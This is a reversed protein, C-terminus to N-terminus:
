ADEEEEIFNYFYPLDHFHHEKTVHSVIHGTVLFRGYEIAEGRDHALGVELLWDCMDTGTFVQKYEKLRYKLDKVIAKSCNNKHYKKFQECLHMTEEDLESSDPLTVIEVGYVLKRWRKLLKRKFNVLSKICPLFILRTDFGFIAFIIFGQGYNMVGDLFEVEVYTGTTVRNFLRWTCLFLGMFMSVQCLVLMLMFRNSQFDDKVNRSRNSGVSDEDPIAVVSTNYKRLLGACRRRQEIGCTGYVCQEVEYTDTLGDGSNSSSDSILSETEKPFPVIDEISTRGVGECSNDCNNCSNMSRYDEEKSDRRGLLRCRSDDKIGDNKKRKSNLIDGNQHERLKSYASSNRQKLILCVINITSCVTLIALSLITQDEGYHFSPDIEAHMHHGALMILLGTCFMPIGFGALILWWRIRLLFCLSRCHLFYLCLSIVATWCRTSLVGVLILTFQVLHLWSITKSHTGEYLILGLCSFVHAVCFCLLFQHPMKKYRGSLFLLVIVWISCVLSIISTDFSTELMLTKYDLESNVVVTLMKASVFMIPASLFTGAVMGTAVIDQGISYHSAYLFVSPATPFTGYLFGFMSLSETTNKNSYSKELAGVVEWTVLPLILAKAAILLVPVILQPGMQGSIKGVLSLGLYFLAAGSFADGLVDLIESIVLPLNRRLIFNGAIGIITMFVIPNTIVGKIVHLILACTGSKPGSDNISKSVEVDVGERKKQIELLLFGIPNLIVVSVPAILYIYNLYQPHSKDYLAQLIPYGLAFDNSQTCFIAFLGAYGYNVPRKAVLTVITVIIFVVSKSILVSTLFMWNVISFDLICMNKFLLAPLCFKSVFTGIGKGQTTSIINARGAIYGFLIVAFCQVIAPYLNDFNVTTGSDTHTDNHVSHPSSTSHNTDM